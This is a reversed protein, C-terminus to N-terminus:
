SSSVRTVVGTQAGLHGDANRKMEEFDLAPTEEYLCLCVVAFSSYQRIDSRNDLRANTVRDNSRAESVDQQKQQGLFTLNYSTAELEVTGSM